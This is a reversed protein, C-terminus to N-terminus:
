STKSKFKEVFEELAKLATSESHVETFSKGQECASM